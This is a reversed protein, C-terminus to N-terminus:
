YLTRQYAEQVTLQLRVDYYKQVSRRLIHAAATHIDQNPRTRHVCWINGRTATATIERYRYPRGESDHSRLRVGVVCSSTQMEEGTRWRLMGDCMM